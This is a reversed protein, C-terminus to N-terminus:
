KEVLGYVLESYSYSVTGKEIAEVFAPDFAALVPRITKWEFTYNRFFSDTIEISMTFDLPEFKDRTKEYTVSYQSIHSATALTDTEFPSNAAHGIQFDKEFRFDGKNPLTHVRASWDYSSPFFSVTPNIHPIRTVKNAGDIVKWLQRMTLDGISDVVKVYSERFCLTKPIRVVEEVAKSRPGEPMDVYPELSGDFKGSQIMGAYTALAFKRKALNKKLDSVPVSLFPQSSYESVLLRAGDLSQMIKWRSLDTIQVTDSQFGSYREPDVIGKVINKPKSKTLAKIMQLLNIRSQEDLVLETAGIYGYPNTHLIPQRVQSLYNLAEEYNFYIVEQDYGDPTAISLGLIQPDLTKKEVWSLVQIVNAEGPHLFLVMTPRYEWSWKDESPPKGGAVDMKAEYNYGGYEVVDGMFYNNGSQWSLFRDSAMLTLRDLLEDKTLTDRAEPFVWRKSILDGTLTYPRWQKNNAPVLNPEADDDWCEYYQGEYSVLDYVWYDHGKEWPRPLYEPPIPAYESREVLGESYGRLKGSMYGDILMDGIKDTSPKIWRANTPESLDIRTIFMEGQPRCDFSVFLLLFLPLSRYIGKM